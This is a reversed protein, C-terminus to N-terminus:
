RKGRQSSKMEDRAEKLDSRIGVLLAELRDLHQATARRQEVARARDRTVTKLERVQRDLEAKGESLLRRSACTGCPKTGREFTITLHAM